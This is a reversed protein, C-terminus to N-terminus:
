YMSARPRGDVPDCMTEGVMKTDIKRLILDALVSLTTLGVM